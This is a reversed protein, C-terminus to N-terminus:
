HQKQPSIPLSVASLISRDTIVKGTRNQDPASHFYIFITASLSAAICLVLLSVIVTITVTLIKKYRESM